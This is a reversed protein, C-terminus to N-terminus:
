EFDNLSDDEFEGCDEWASVWLEYRIRIEGDDTTYTHKALNASKKTFEIVRPCKHPDPMGCEQRFKVQVTLVEGTSKSTLTSLYNYFVGGDTKTRKKAFVTIKM